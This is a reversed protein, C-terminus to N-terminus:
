TGDPITVFELTMEKIKDANHEVAGHLFELWASDGEECIHSSKARELLNRLTSSLADGHTRIDQYKLPPYIGTVMEDLLPSVKEVIDGIDDLDATHEIVLCDGHSQIAGTIKKLCAKCAKALGLCPALLERDKDSWSDENNHEQGLIEDLDDWADASEDLLAEQVEEIVDDVLNSSTNIVRLVADKDNKPIDDFCECCQWVEGTSQLQAKSGKSKETKVTKVLTHLSEITGIVTAKTFKRLTIGQDKPLGYYVTLMTLIAMEVKQLLCQSELVTPLPPSFMLCLKTAESSVVKFTG